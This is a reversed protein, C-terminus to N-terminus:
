RAIGATAATSLHHRQVRRQRRDLDHLRGRALVARPDARPPVPREQRRARRDRPRRPGPGAARRGRPRRRRARAPPAPRGRRRAAPQARPRVLRRARRHVAVDLLRGPDPGPRHRGPPRRDAGDGVHPPQLRLGDPGGAGAAPGPHAGLPHGRPGPRQGARRPRRGAPRRAPGGRHRPAAGHRALVQRGAPRRGEGARRSRAGGRGAAGPHRQERGALPPPRPRLPRPAACPGRAPRRGRAAAGPVDAYRRGNVTVSGATPRDLGLIMRMTTSKGAGNPGLFGTVRGPEVTFDIGDVATKAGYTKTLGRAAIMRDSRAPAPFDHRPAQRDAATGACRPAGGRSGSRDGMPRSRATGRIVSRYCSM